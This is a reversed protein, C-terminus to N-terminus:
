VFKKGALLVVAVLVASLGFLAAASQACGGTGDIGNQGNAGDRGDAGAAGNQGDVGDKGDAGASGSPGDTGRAPIGTDTDGIWWHGNEGIRPTLGDQPPASEEGEVLILCSASLTGYSATVIAIGPKKGKVQGEPSVAVVSKDSTTYTLPLMTYPNPYVISLDKIEGTKLTLNSLAVGDALPIQDTVVRDASMKDEFFRVGALLFKCSHLANQADSLQLKIFTLRAPDPSNLALPTLACRVYNWGSIFQAVEGGDFWKYYGSSSRTEDYVVFGFLKQPAAHNSAFVDDIDGIFLWFGIQLKNPMFSSVDVPGGFNLENWNQGYGVSLDVSKDYGFPAFGDYSPAANNVKVTNLDIEASQPAPQPISEILTYNGAYASGNAIKMGYVALEAYGGGAWLYFMTLETSGSAYAGTREGGSLKLAVHNWGAVLNLGGLAGSKFWRLKGTNDVVNWDWPDQLNQRRGVTFGFEFDTANFDKKDGVWLWFDLAPNPVVSYDVGSLAAANDSVPVGGTYLNMYLQTYCGNQGPVIDRAFYSVGEGAPTFAETASGDHSRANNLAVENFSKQAATAALAAGSLVSGDILRPGYVALRGAGATWLYFMTLGTRGYAYAGTRNAASFPLSLHNWGTVLGLGSIDTKFWRLKDTNVQGTQDSPNTRLNVTRGGHFGFEVYSGSDTFATLDPIYLWFDLAPDSFVASEIGADATNDASPAAGGYLNIYVQHNGGTFVENHSFGSHGAPVRIDTAPAYYAADASLDIPGAAQPPAATEILNTDASYGSGDVLRPAAVAMGGTGASWMFFMTLDAGFAGTKQASGLKLALRNWGQILGLGSIATGTDFYLKGASWRLKDANVQGSGDLPDARLNTSRGGHFGFEIHVSDLGSGSWASIDSIWLWFDLTPDSVATYDIGPDTTNDSAPAAGAYINVYIQQNGGANVENHTLVSQGGLVKIDTAPAYYTANAFLDIEGVARTGSIRFSLAASALLAVTLACLVIPKRIRRIKNM